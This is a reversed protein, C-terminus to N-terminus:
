ADYATMSSGSYVSPFGVRVLHFLGDPAQSRGKEVAQEPTDGLIADGTRVNIAAYKGRHNAEFDAKYREEYIKQGLTAIATPSLFPGHTAM